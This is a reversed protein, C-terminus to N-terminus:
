REPFLAEVLRYLEDPKESHEGPAAFIVDSKDAQPVFRPNGKRGVVVFEAQHRLVRGLVFHTKVWTITFWYELGWAKLVDFADPLFQSTTWLFVVADDALPLRIAKIEDLSMSPYPPVARNAYPDYEGSEYQWPPDIVVVDYRREPPPLARAKARLEAVQAEREKIKEYARVIKLIEVHSVKYDAAIQRLSEGSKAREYIKPYEERPVTVRIDPPHYSKSRTTNTVVGMEVPSKAEKNEWKSIAQQSVGLLQAVEEQSRGEQRLRLALARAKEYVERVQEPSLQRRATNLVIGLEFADEEPLDVIEYPTKDKAILWRHYGDIIRGDPLIKIPYKIGHEEISKKLAEFEASSLPPLAEQLEKWPKIEVM